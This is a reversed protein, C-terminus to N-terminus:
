LFKDKINDSLKNLLILAENIFLNDNRNLKRSNLTPFKFYQLQNNVVIIHFKIDVRPNSYKYKIHKDYESIYQKDYLLREKIIDISKLLNTSQSLKIFNYVIKNFGQFRIQRNIYEKEKILLNLEEQNKYGKINSEYEYKYLRLMLTNNELKNKM